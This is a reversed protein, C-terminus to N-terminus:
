SKVPIDYQADCLLNIRWTTIIVEQQDFLGLSHQCCAHKLNILALALVNHHLAQLHLNKPESFEHTLCQIFIQHVWMM